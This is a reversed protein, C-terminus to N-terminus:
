PSQFSSKLKVGWAQKVNHKISSVLCQTKCLQSQYNLIQCMRSLRTFGGTNSSVATVFSMLCVNNSQNKKGEYTKNLYFSTISHLLFLSISSQLACSTAPDGTSSSLLCVFTQVLPMQKEEEFAVAATNDSLHSCKTQWKIQQKKPTAKGGKEREKTLSPCM